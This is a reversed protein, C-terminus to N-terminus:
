QVTFDAATLGAVPANKRDLVTAFAHQERTERQANARGGGIAILVLAAASVAVVRAYRRTTVM